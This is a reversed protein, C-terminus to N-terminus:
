EIIKKIESAIIRSYLKAGEQNLHNGNSFLDSHHTFVTDCLHNLLPIDYHNCMKKIPEYMDDNTKGYEPSIAFAMRISDKNETIFLDLLRLKERDYNYVKHTNDVCPNGGMIKTNLLYFGKRYWNTTRINDLLMQFVVSNYRYMNSWMKYRSSADYRSFMTDVCETGYLSKLTKLEDINSYKPNDLLDFNYIDYIIIKPTYRQKMLNLKPYFCVIGTKDEGCDYVGMKLSDELIQTNYHNTSRSSGFVLVDDCCINNIHYIRKTNGGIAHAEGYRLLLGM